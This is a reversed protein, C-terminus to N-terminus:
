SFVIACVHRAGTSKISIPLMCNVEDPDIRKEGEDEELETDKEERRFMKGSHTIGQLM